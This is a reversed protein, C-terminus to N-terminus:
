FFDDWYRISKLLMERARIPSPTYVEEWVLDLKDGLFKIRKIKNNVFAWDRIEEINPPLELYEIKNNAFRMAWIYKLNDPLKIDEIQNNRFAYEWILKITSPLKVSKINRDYFVNNGIATVTEWNITEPIVIDENDWHYGIITWNCFEFNTTEM